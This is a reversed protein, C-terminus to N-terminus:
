NVVEKYHEEYCNQCEYVDFIKYDYEIRRLFKWEYGNCDCHKEM